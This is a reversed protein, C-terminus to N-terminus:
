QIARRKFARLQRDGKQRGYRQRTGSVHNCFVVVALLALSVHLDAREGAATDRFCGGGGGGGDDGPEEESGGLAVVPNILGYGYLDDKGPEGLDSATDRLRQELDLAATGNAVMLGALGTVHPAAMSTGVFPCYTDGLASSWCTSYVGDSGDTAPALGGPAAVDVEPGRNSYIALTKQPGVASVGVVGTCNAPEGVFSTSNGAAAVVVVNRSRLSDVAAQFTGSCPEQAGLSMNIVPTPMDLTVGRSTVGALYMMGDVIQSTCGASSNEGQAPYLARVGILRANWIIGAVGVGNNSAAGITGAVHTGHSRYFPFDPHAVDSADDDPGPTPDNEYAVDSPGGCEAANVFDYDRAVDYSPALDPHRISFGSDVIGIPISTAGTELDWAKEWSLFSPRLHWQKAYEPDNPTAYATLVYDPEAFEVRPDSRAAALTASFDANPAVRAVHVGIGALVRDSYLGHETLFVQASAASLREDFKVLLTGPAHPALGDATRAGAAALAPALGMACCLAAVGAGCFARSAQRRLSRLSHAASRAACPWEGFSRGYAPVACDDNRKPVAIRFSLQRPRHNM